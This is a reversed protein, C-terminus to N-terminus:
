RHDSLAVSIANSFPWIPEGCISSSICVPKSHTMCATIPVGALSIVQALIASDNGSPPFNDCFECPLDNGHFVKATVRLMPTPSYVAILEVSAKNRANLRKM